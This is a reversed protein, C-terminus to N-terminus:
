EKWGEAVPAVENAITLIGEHAVNEVAVPRKLPVGVLAIVCEFITILALLPTVLIDSGANEIATDAAGM